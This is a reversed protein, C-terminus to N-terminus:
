AALLPILYQVFIFMAVGLLIMAVIIQVTMVAVHRWYHEMDPLRVAKYVVSVGLALPILLAWWMAHANIPDLFPRWGVVLTALLEAPAAHPAIM